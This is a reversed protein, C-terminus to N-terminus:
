RKVESAARIKSKPALEPSHAWVMETPPVTTSPSMGKGPTDTVTFPEYAPVAVSRSPFNARVASDPAVNTNEYM